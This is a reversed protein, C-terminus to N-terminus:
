VHARGIKNQINNGSETVGAYTYRYQPNSVDRHGFCIGIYDAAFSTDKMPNNSFGFHSWPIRMEVTYGADRDIASPDTAKTAGTKSVTGNVKVAFNGNMKLSGNQWATGSKAPVYTLVSGDASIRIRFCSTDKVNLQGCNQPDFVLEIGDSTNLKSEYSKSDLVTLTTDTVTAAVYLYDDDQHFYFVANGGLGTRHSPIAAYEMERIEGDITIGNNTSGMATVNYSVPAAARGKSNVCTYIVKYEGATEFKYTCEKSASTEALVTKGSADEIHVFLSSSVDGEMPDTAKASSIQFEQGVFIRMDTAPADIVPIIHSKDVVTVLYSASDTLGGDELTYTAVYTGGVLTGVNQPQDGKGSFVNKSMSDVLSVQIRASIDDGASSKGTAARLIVSDDSAFRLEAKDVVLKPMGSTFALESESCGFLMSTLLLILISVCLTLKAKFM